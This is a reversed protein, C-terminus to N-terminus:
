RVLGIRPIVEATSTIALWHCTVASLTGMPTSACAWIVM